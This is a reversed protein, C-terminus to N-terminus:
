KVNFNYVLKIGADFYGLKNVYSSVLPLVEVTPVPYLPEAGVQSISIMSQASANNKYLNYVGYDAYVGIGFSDGNKLSFEYGIEASANIQFIPSDWSVGTDLQEESLKGTILADTLTVGYPAYYATIHANTITQHGQTYVPVVFRPGINFYLGKYLLSFMLPVQVQLESMSSKVQDATITYDIQDGETDMVSYADNISGSVSSSVYSVSVGTLIGCYPNNETKRKFYHAYQLDFAAQYGLNWKCLSTEALYAAAGGRAGISFRNFAETNSLNITDTKITLKESYITDYVVVRETVVKVITDSVTQLLTDKVIQFVTDTKVITEKYKLQMKDSAFRKKTDEFEEDSMGVDKYEVWSYIEKLLVGKPFEKTGVQLVTYEKGLCDKKIRQGTAFYKADKGLVVKDGLNVAFATATCLLVALCIIIKKM